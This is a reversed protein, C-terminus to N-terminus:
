SFRFIWADSLAISVHLRRSTIPAKDSVEVQCIRLQEIRAFGETVRELIGGLPSMETTLDLKTIQYQYREAALYGASTDVNLHDLTFSCCNRIALTTVERRALIHFYHLPWRNVKKILALLQQESEFRLELLDLSLHSLNVMLEVSKLLRRPMAHDYGDSWPPPKIVITARRIM